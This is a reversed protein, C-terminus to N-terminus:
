LSSYAQSLNPLLILVRDMSKKYRWILVYGTHATQSFFSLTVMYGTYKTIREPSIAHM